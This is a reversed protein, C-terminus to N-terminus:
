WLKARRVIRAGKIERRPATQRHCVLLTAIFCKCFFWEPRLSTLYHFYSSPSEVHWCFNVVAWHLPRQGRHLRNLGGGRNQFQNPQLHPRSFCKSSYSFPRHLAKEREKWSGRRNVKWPLTPRVSTGKPAEKGRSFDSAIRFPKEHLLFPSKSSM